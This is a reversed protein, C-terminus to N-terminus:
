CCLKGTRLCHSRGHPDFHLSHFPVVHVDLCLKQLTWISLQVHQPQCGLQALGPLFPGILLCDFLLIDSLYM